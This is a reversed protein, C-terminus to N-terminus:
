PISDYGQALAQRKRAFYAGVIAGVAFVVLTYISQIVINEHQGDVSSFISSTTEGGSTTQPLAHGGQNQVPVFAEGRNVATEVRAVFDAVAANM